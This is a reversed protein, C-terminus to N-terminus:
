SINRGNKNNININNNELLKIIKDLKKKELRDLHDQVAEIRRSAKRDTALDIEVKKRDREAARNQSMLIVPATFAAQFSLALNLLIFPYPDWHSIWATINIIVWLIFIFSQIFIFRWSGVFTTVRDSARCGISTRKNNPM